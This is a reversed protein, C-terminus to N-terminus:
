RKTLERIIHFHDDHFQKANLKDLPLWFAKAADDRGKVTPRLVDDPLHFYFVHTIIRGRESRGPQEYIKEKRLFNKWLTENLSIGTEEQLERLCSHFLTENEELFGGPMAYLGKGPAKAREVLLVANQHILLADTTTFIPPYPATSWAKKETDILSQEEKLYQYDETERFKELFTLTSNPIPFNPFTEQHSLRYYARRIPTASINDFNEVFLTQWSPFLDLYYSSSDKKHGILAINTYQSLKNQALTQNVIQQVNLQWTADDYPYDDITACYIRKQEEPSFANLIINERETFTFPNKLNRPTNSSGCLILIYQAQALAKKVVALHGNHFPQFRGIFIAIDFKNTM